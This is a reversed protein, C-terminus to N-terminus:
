GLEDQVAEAEDFFRRFYRLEGLLARLHATGAEGRTADTPASESRSGLAEAFGAGLESLVREREREVVGCLATLQAKDKSRALERLTERHEMMTMLFEPSAPPETGEGLSAGLRALLAEARRAPDRLRRFAENVEIARNLAARREAAPRGSYRDPHLARSLDRHRKGLEDLDLEFTPEIQFISFPDTM